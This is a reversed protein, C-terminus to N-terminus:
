FCITIFGLSILTVESSVLKAKTQSDFSPDPHKVSIVATLGERVDEGMLGQKVDKLLNANTAYNTITRTLGGRLVHIPRLILQAFSAAVFIALLIAVFATAAAPRLAKSLEDRALVTSVGVRISGFPAGALTLPQRVELTRGGSRYVSLLQALGPKALLDDLNGAPPM